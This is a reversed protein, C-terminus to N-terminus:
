KIKISVKEDVSNVVVDSDSKTFVFSDEGVFGNFPTYTFTNTDTDYSSLTGHKPSIVIAPVKEASDNDNDFKLMDITKATEKVVEVYQNYVNPERVIFNDLDLTYTVDKTGFKIVDLIITLVITDTGSGVCSMIGSVMTDNDDFTLATNNPLPTPSDLIIQNQNNVELVMTQQEYTFTLVTDKRIAYKSELTISDKCDENLAILTTEIYEGNSNGTVTMGVFLDNNDTLKFKSTLEDRNTTDISSQVTKTYSSKGYVSMGPTIDSTIVTRGERDNETKTTNPKLSTDNVYDGLKDSRKLVKKFTTSSNINNSFRPNGKIYFNGSTSPNETITLTYTSSTYNPINESYTNAPGTKTVDSGSVSLAPGTQSTTNTFTITPNKYQYIRLDPKQLSPRSLNYTISDGLSVGATPIITIDYYDFTYQDKLKPFKQNFSYTRGSPISILDLEEDLISEGDSDKITLSFVADKDGTITIQRSEGNLNLPTNLNRINLSNIIKTM